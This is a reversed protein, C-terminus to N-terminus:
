ESSEDSKFDGDADCHEPPWGHKRINMARLPRSICYILLYKVLEVFGVALFFSIFPSGGIFEYISM